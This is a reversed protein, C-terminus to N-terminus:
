RFINQTTLRREEVEFFDEYWVGMPRPSDFINELELDGNDSFSLQAVKFFEGKKLPTEITVYRNEDLKSISSFLSELEDRDSGTIYM